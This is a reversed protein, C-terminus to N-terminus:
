ATVPVSASALGSTQQIFLMAQKPTFTEPIIMEAPHGLPSAAGYWDRLSSPPVHGAIPKTQHRRLTEELSVDFYYLFTGGPTRDALDAIMERYHGANLIGDLVVHFGSELAALASAHLMRRCAVRDEDKRQLVVRRFYDEELIAMKGVCASALESAVTSKGAASPGRLVLLCRADRTSPDSDGDGAHFGSRFAV